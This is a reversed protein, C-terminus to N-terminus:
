ASVTDPQPHGYIELSQQTCNLGLKFPSHAKMAVLNCVKIEGKENILTWLGNFICERGIHAIHKTVLQLHNLIVLPWGFTFVCYYVKHSHDIACVNATLMAMHQNFDGQNEEIFQDYVDQFWQMSSIYGDFGDDSTDPFPQFSKFMRESWRYLGSQNALFDLYQIHLKNYQLLHQVHVASTFQKTSMGNQFCSQM